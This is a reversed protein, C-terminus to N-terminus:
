QNDLTDILKLYARRRDAVAEPKLETFKTFTAKFAIKVDARLAHINIPTNININSICSKASVAQQQNQPLNNGFGIILDGKKIGAKHCAGGITVRTVRMAKLKVGNKLTIEKERFSIGLSVKRVEKMMIKEILFNLRGRIEPNDRHAVYNTKLTDLSKSPNKSIWTDLQKMTAERILYDPNGLSAINPFNNDVPEDQGQASCYTSLTLVILLATILSQSLSSM